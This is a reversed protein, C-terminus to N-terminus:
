RANLTDALKAYVSGIAVFHDNNKESVNLYSKEPFLVYSSFLKRFDNTVVQRRIAIYIVISERLIQKYLISILNGEM